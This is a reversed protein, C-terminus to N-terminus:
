GVYKCSAAYWTSAATNRASSTSSLKELAVFVAWKANRADQLLADAKTLDIYRTVRRPINSMGGPTLQLASAENIQIEKFDPDRDEPKKAINAAVKARDAEVLQGCRWLHALNYERTVANNNGFRETVTNAFAAANDHIIRLPVLYRLLDSFYEGQDQSNFNVRDLRLNNFLYSTLYRQSHSQAIETMTVGSDFPSCFADHPDFVKEDSCYYYNDDLLSAAVRANKGYGFTIAARDYPAPGEPEHSATRVYEMVTSTKAHQAFHAQDM